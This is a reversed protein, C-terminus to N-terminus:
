KHGAIHFEGNDVAVAFVGRRLGISATVSKGGFQAVWRRDGDLGYRRM